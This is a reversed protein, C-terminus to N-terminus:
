ERFKYTSLQEDWRADLHLFTKECVSWIEAAELFSSFRQEDIGPIAYVARVLRLLQAGLMAHDNEKGEKRYWKQSNMLSDVLPLPNDPPRLATSRLECHRECFDLHSSPQEMLGGTFYGSVILLPVDEMLVLPYLPFDDMPPTETDMPKGVQVPPFNTGTDTPIFLLRLLLFVKTSKSSWLADSANRSCYERLGTLVHSKDEARLLNIARIHTGPDFTYGDWSSCDDVISQIDITGTRWGEQKM